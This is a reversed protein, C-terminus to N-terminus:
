GNFQMINTTYSNQNIREWYNTTPSSAPNKIKRKELM